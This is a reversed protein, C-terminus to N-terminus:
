SRMYGGRGPAMPYSDPVGEFDVGSDLIKHEVLITSPHFVAFVAAVALMLLADLVYSYVEKQMLSGNNGQAYEIMRFVSRVSILLSVFYLVLIFKRWPSNTTQSKITPRRSIRVHFVATVIIFFGFFILQIALGLLIVKNGTNISSESDAMALLGGGGSQGFLSLIDGLLFFKTLWNVRILSYDQGDLNRILRGLVMYISAAFFAPGLLILMSQIIYPVLSWDPTQKASYARAAYGITEFLCGIFFPIFSWTRTKIILQIHRFSAAGFFLAFIVAGAVSPDYHYLKFGSDASSDSDSSM